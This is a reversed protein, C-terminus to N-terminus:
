RIMTGKPFHDFFKTSGLAFEVIEFDYHELLTYFAKSVVAIDNGFAGCGWAGLILVEAGEHAAM